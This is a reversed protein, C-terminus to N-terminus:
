LKSLDAVGRVVTPWYFRQTVRRLTKKRGLHGALPISHSLKLIGKPLVLQDVDQESDLEPPRWQRHLLGDQRFFSQPTSSPLEGAIRQVEQLMEDEEQMQHLVQRYIGLSLDSEEEGRRKPDKARVLGWKHRARRKDQMSLRLRTPHDEFVDDALVGTLPDAEPQPEDNFPADRKDKPETVTRM